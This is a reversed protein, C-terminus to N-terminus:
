IQYQDKLKILRTSDEKIYFKRTVDISEHHLLISIDELPMGANRLLTAGTHRWDHPHLTSIGIMKGILKCWSNLTGTDIPIDEDVRRGIFLWGHDNISKLRREEKLDIMIDRVEESFFLDVVKGEKELVGHVVRNELDIQDWRVSAVANVRAMTSLSFLAYLRIQTNRLEILKKRMLEVQESTLFTQTVIRAGGRPRSIFECPNEIILKKKRLFKYFSSIVSTRVRMHNENNGEQKCFFLFEEIDDETLNLISRNDQNDLIYIFWQNLNTKYQYVSGPSLNRISMDREYKKMLEKTEPNIRALKASDHMVIRKSRKPMADGGTFKNFSKSTQM